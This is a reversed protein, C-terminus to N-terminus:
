LLSFILPIRRLSQVSKFRGRADRTIGVSKAGAIFADVWERDLERKSYLPFRHWFNLLLKKLTNM